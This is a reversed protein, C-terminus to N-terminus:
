GVNIANLQVAILYYFIILMFTVNNLFTETSNPSGFLNSKTAFSTLGQNRPVRSFIIFILFVSLVIWVLKLLIAFM